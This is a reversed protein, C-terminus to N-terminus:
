GARAAAPLRGLEPELGGHRLARGYLAAAPLTTLAGAVLAAPIGFVNGIVGLV